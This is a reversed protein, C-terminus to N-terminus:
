SDPRRRHLLQDRQELMALTLIQTFEKLADVLDPDAHGFVLRTLQAQADPTSQGSQAQEHLWAGIGAACEAAMGQDSEPMAAVRAQLEPLAVAMAQQLIQHVIQQSSENMEILGLMIAPATMVLDGM